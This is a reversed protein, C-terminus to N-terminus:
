EGVIVFNDRDDGRDVVYVNGDSSPMGGQVWRGDWAFKRALKEAAAKHNDDVNLSHDYSTWVTGAAASAKIRSGKSNTPGYFKTVIAQYGM